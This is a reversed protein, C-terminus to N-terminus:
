KLLGHATPLTISCDLGGMANAGVALRGGHADVAMRCFDWALRSAMTRGEIVESLPGRDSIEITAEAAERAEVFVNGGPLSRRIARDLVHRLVRSLVEADALLLVPEAPLRTQVHVSKDRAAFEFRALTTALLPALEVRARRLRLHGEEGRGLDLVDRVRDLTADIRERNAHGVPGLIEEETHREAVSITGTLHRWPDALDEVLDAIGEERQQYRFLSTEYPQAVAQIEDAREMHSRVRASLDFVNIPKYVFDTAGTLFAEASDDVEAAGSVLLIPRHRFERMARLRRCVSIGDSGPMKLDLLVVDPIWKRAQEYASTGDGCLMVKGFDPRFTEYLLDCTAKDDDAILISRPATSNM